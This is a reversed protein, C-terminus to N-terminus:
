LFEDKYYRHKLSVELIIAWLSQDNKYCFYVTLPNIGEFGLYNPMTLMWADDFLEPDLDHKRLVEFLKQKITRRNDSERGSHLYASNRMGTARLWRGGYGFLWGGGLDLEGKELASLSLLFSIMPYAFRHASKTPLLRAHTVKNICIYGRPPSM